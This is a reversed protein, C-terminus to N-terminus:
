ILPLLNLLLNWRKCRVKDIFLCQKLTRTYGPEVIKSELNLEATNFKTLIATVQDRIKTSEDGSLLIDQIARAIIDNKLRVAIPSNGILVPVLKLTKEIIPLQNATTVDLLLALDDVDMLWLPIKLIPTQETENQFDTTYVKYNLKNNIEHIGSFAKTYEGYADFMFINAGLPPNDKHFLSQFMSAVTFSKGSGSNGLIAFHNSFFSNIDLNIRYNEYINSMGLFLNSDNTQETGLLGRLEDLNAIRVISTFSPKTTVGPSFRNDIFEGVINANLTTRNVDTIEGVIRKGNNDEFITHLGVINPQKTIDIALQVVVNNGVIEIINGLM